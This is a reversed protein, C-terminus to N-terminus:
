EESSPIDATDPDLTEFVPGYTWWIWELLGSQSILDGSRAFECLTQLDLGEEDVERSDYEYVEVPFLGAATNTGTHRQNNPNVASFKHVKSPTAKIDKPDFDNACIATIAVGDRSFRDRQTKCVVLSTSKHRILGIRVPVGYSEDKNVSFAATELRQGDVTGGLYAAFKQVFAQYLAAMGPTDAYLLYQAVDVFVQDEPAEFSPDANYYLNKVRGKEAQRGSAILKPFLDGEWLSYGIANNRPLPKDPNQVAFRVARMTNVASLAPSVNKASQVLVEWKNNFRITPVVSGIYGGPGATELVILRRGTIAKAVSGKVFRFIPAMYGWGRSFVLEYDAIEQDNENVMFYSWFKGDARQVTFDEAVFTKYNVGKLTVEWQDEESNVAFTIDSPLGDFWKQNLRGEFTDSKTWNRSIVSDESMTMQSWDVQGSIAFESGAIRFTIKRPLHKLENEPMVNSFSQSKM